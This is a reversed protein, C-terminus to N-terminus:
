HRTRRKLARNLEDVDFEWPPEGEPPGEGPALEDLEVTEEGDPSMDDCDYQLHFRRGDVLRLVVSLSALDADVVSRWAEIADIDAATLDRPPVLDLASELYTLVAHRQQPQPVPM